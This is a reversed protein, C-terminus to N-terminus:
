AEEKAAYALMHVMNEGYRKEAVRALGPTDFREKFFCRILVLGERAPLKRRTIRDLLGVIIRSFAPFPPDIFIIDYEPEATDLFAEAKRCVVRCQEGFGTLAINKRILDAAANSADVFVAGAAGRSVAELGFAGTGACLDLVRAGEVRRDLMGFLSEKIRDMLPRVGKDTCEALKRGKAKGAIIRM